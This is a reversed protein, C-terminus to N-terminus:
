MTQEVKKSIVWIGVGIAAATGLYFILNAPTKKKLHVDNTGEDNEIVIPDYNDQGLMVASVNPTLNM